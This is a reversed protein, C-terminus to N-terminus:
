ILGRKFQTPTIGTRKKFVLYFASKSNFGSEYAIELFTKKPDKNESIIKKAEEIRYCNIFDNVNQGKCENISQSLIRESINLRKAIEKLGYNFNLYPKETMMIAELKLIYSELQDEPLLLNRKIFKSPEEYFVNSVMAKYLIATFYISFIVFSLNHIIESKLFFPSTFIFLNYTICAIFYGYLILRNWKMKENFVSDNTRNAKLFQELKIISFINYAGVHFIMLKGLFTGFPISLISSSQILEIKHDFSKLHFAILLYLALSIAPLYHLLNKYLFKFNGSIQSAIFLYMSPGWVFLFPESINKLYPVSYLTFDYHNYWISNMSALMQAFLFFALFRNSLRSWGMYLLVFILISLQFFIISHIIDYFDITM